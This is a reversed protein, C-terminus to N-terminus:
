PHEVQQDVMTEIEFSGTPFAYGMPKLVLLMLKQRCFSQWGGLPQIPLEIVPLIGRYFFLYVCM